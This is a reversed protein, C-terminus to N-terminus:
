ATSFCGVFSLFLVRPYATLCCLPNAHSLALVPNMVILREELAAEGGMGFM